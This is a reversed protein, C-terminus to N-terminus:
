GELMGVDGRRAREVEHSRREDIAVIHMCTYLYICM